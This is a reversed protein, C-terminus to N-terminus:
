QSTTTESQPHNIRDAERRKEVFWENVWHARNAMQLTLEPLLEPRYLVNPIFMRYALKADHSCWSGLLHTWKWNDREFQNLELALHSTRDLSMILPIILTFHLGNGLMQHPERTRVELGIGETSHSANWEFEASLHTHHDSNFKISEREIALETERWERVGNWKSEQLGTPCFFQEPAHLIDDPHRRFGMEPHETLAVVANHKTKLHEAIIQAERIQLIVAAFCTRKLFVMNEETAFVSSHLKYTDEKADYVLASMTAADMEHELEVEFDSAKGAGRILDTEAHIRYSSVSNHYFGADCWIRQAQGTPWWIFGGKTDSMWSQEFRMAQVLESILQLGLSDPKRWSM